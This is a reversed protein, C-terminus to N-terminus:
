YFESALQELFMQINAYNTLDGPYESFRVGGEDGQAIFSIITPYRKNNFNALIDENRENM